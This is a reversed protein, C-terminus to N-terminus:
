QGGLASCDQECARNGWGGVCVFYNFTFDPFVFLCSFCKKFPSLSTGQSDMHPRSFNGTLTLSCLVCLVMLNQWLCYALFHRDWECKHSKLRHFYFCLDIPTFLQPIHSNIPSLGAHKEPVCPFATLINWLSFCSRTRTINRLSGPLAPSGAYTQRTHVVKPHYHHKSDTHDRARSHDLTHFLQTPESHLVHTAQHNMLSYSEDMSLLSVLYLLVSVILFSFM